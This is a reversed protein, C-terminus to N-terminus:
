GIFLGDDEESDLNIMRRASFFGRKIGAAGTLGREEDVTLLVEVPGHVM